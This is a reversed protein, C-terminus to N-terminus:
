KLHHSIILIYYKKKEPHTWLIEPIHGSTEPIRGSTEPIHEAIKYIIDSM